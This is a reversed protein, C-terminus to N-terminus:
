SHKGSVTAASPVHSSVALVASSLLAAATIGAALSALMFRMFDAYINRTVLTQTKAQM